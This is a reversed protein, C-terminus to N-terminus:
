IYLEGPQIKAANKKFKLQQAKLFRNKVNSTQILHTIWNILNIILKTILKSFSAKQQTKKLIKITSSKL